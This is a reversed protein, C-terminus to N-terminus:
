RAEIFPLTPSEACVTEILDPDTPVDLTLVENGSATIRVDDEIRIGIGRFAPPVTHSVRAAKERATAELKKAKAAGMTLRREAWEDQDYELMALSVEERDDVYVGPEVTFVMGPELPRPQGDLRYTGADHVDLGMWHGTGHMFFERHHHMQIREEVPGPLLGLDVLGETIVATAADHQAALSSGPRALALAAQQASWVVEYLARQPASFRGDAPFTRTIDASFHGFEAGADILVLDGATVCRGNNIYHLICANQGSAVISPYADRRAGRMRFVYELAAQIQFEYHGPQTFRMAENHGEASIQCATRILRIEEPSKILRMEAMLADLDRVDTPVPRGYRQSLGALGRLLGTIRRHFAPHSFPLFVTSRGVLRRRTIEEMRSIPYARDALHDRQAGETGARLGTWVETERDRPRVFLVYQEDHGGPDLLMVSDPEDFGTLYHFDSKQRFPYDVDYNRNVERGAPLLAIADGLRSALHERRKAFILPDGM